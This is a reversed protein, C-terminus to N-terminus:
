DRFVFDDATINSKNCMERFLSGPTNFLKWPSDFEKTQGKDMVLIRDYNIITKLRHAICLITCNSFERAIATQIKNDTEYDVSSTAEDLILIKSERVLARAFSVLQREGLSFNEGESEVVKDLHFKPLNESKTSKDLQQAEEIETATLIGSKRLSNWLWEDSHEGFPDLNSRITGNFLVPDQPIISLHSRLSKLGITSIDIGDILIRGSELESLRYLATMISSKGAGTRGCIGIKESSSIIFSLDKLILPLEPRYKMNVKDFEIAGESPWSSPPETSDITYAAEHPLKLAYHCLREASNMYNEVETFTRILNSLQSSISIAYTMLLGVSAANLHFVKFCCLLSVLCVLCSAVIELQIGIWRQNAFQVFAAENARNVLDDSIKAFRKQSRYAKIVGMGSLVENVNNFVFSRLIAELRKVERNSAQYYNAILIFISAVVPLACAVWPIYIILLVLIGVIQAGSDCFFRLNESIENDLVDTDKTFRNLIRGMPTTDMFTMPTYLINNIAKLHLNKASITTMTILVIFSMTVFIPALLNLMVYIGIYFGNSKGPFKQSIWFSLWTNTFISCFTAISLVLTLLILFGWISLKGSGYKIYNAYVENTIQNIAREEDSTIKGKSVDKNLKYDLNDDEDVEVLSVEFPDKEIETDINIDLEDDTETKSFTMLKNFESNSASLGTMTGVDITGDSNVFIIRDAKGILALQHTALIRTKKKLLGLLCQNLIHKGVRSDVASLVDDMLLISKDSYVARALNIRAKQGGSLTIGREGVETFDGGPLNALDVHLSCSYIVRDYFEQDFESGFLINERITNNQIWPTGCLLLSGNIEIEGSDCRMFGALANLLSSKGTGVLGTIVVFEGKKVTLNLNKLGKFTTDSKADSEDDDNNGDEFNDWSFFGNTVNIAVESQVDHTIYLEHSEEEPASLLEGVRQFGMLMDASTSLAQPLFFIFFSLMEFSSVSSFINAPNATKGKLAYLVLFAIMASIGNLTMALSYIVNRLTQIKLIMNVEQNRVQIMRKHYPQEWSYFKIMKLNNLIEKILGVRKDTIKSVADRYTFLKKAGLSIFGLFFIFAAIGIVASVGINVILIVIAVIAAAPLAVILPQFLLAIEIRALDTTIISTIKGTPFKHRGHANLKLSKKLIANTLLAKTSGGVLLGRYFYHNVTVGSLLMLLALGISYGISKGVNSELGLSRAEVYRILYKTLLPTFAMAFLSIVALITGIVLTRKFTFFIVFAIDWKSLVFDKLDEELGVSSKEVSENREKCKKEVHKGQSKLKIQELYFYFLETYHEVKLDDTLVWLDNPQLTRAYGVKMLPFLWWFFAKYLFNASQEPHLKREGEKPIPYERKPMLFTLFRKQPLYENNGLELSTIDDM